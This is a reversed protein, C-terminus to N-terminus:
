GRLTDVRTLWKRVRNWSGSNQDVMRREGSRSRAESPLGGKAPIALSNRAGGFRADCATMRLIDVTAALRSYLSGRLHVV